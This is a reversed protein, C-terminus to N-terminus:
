HASAIWDHVCALSADDLSAGLPMRSGFPPATMLKTYLVSASPDGPVVLSGAGGTAPKNALRGLVGPSALDLGAAGGSAAHCGATACKAELIASEVPPCAAATGADASQAAAGGADAFREPDELTGACAVLGCAVLAIVLRESSM